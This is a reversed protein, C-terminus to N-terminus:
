PYTAVRGGSTENSTPTRATLGTGFSERDEDRLRVMENSRNPWELLQLKSTESPVHSGAQCRQSIEAASELERALALAGM